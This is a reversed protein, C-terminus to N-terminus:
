GFPIPGVINEIDSDDGLFRLLTQKEGHDGHETALLLRSGNKEM